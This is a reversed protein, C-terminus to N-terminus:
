AVLADPMISFQTHTLHLLICCDPLICCNLSANEMLSPMTSIALVYHCAAFAEKLHLADHGLFCCVKKAAKKAKKVAKKQDKLMREKDADTLRPPPGPLSDGAPLQPLDQAAGDGDVGIGGLVDHGASQVGTMMNRNPMCWSWQLCVHHAALSTLKCQALQAAKQQPGNVILWWRSKAQRSLVCLLMYTMGLCMHALRTQAHLLIIAHMCPNVRPERHMDLVRSQM